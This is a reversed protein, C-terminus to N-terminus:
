HKGNDSATVGKNLLENMAQIFNAITEPSPVTWEKHLVATAAREIAADLETRLTMAQGVTLNTVFKQRARYPDTPVWTEAIQIAPEGEDTVINGVRISGNPIEIEATHTVYEKLTDDKRTSM